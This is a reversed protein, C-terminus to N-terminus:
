NEHVIIFDTYTQQSIEEWRVESVKAAAPGQWLWDIMQKVADKEGSFLTEVRGDPLNKIWGNLLLAQARKRAHDRFYVGQVKGSVLAHITMKTM